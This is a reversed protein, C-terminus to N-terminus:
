SALHNRIELYKMFENTMVYDPLANYTTIERAFEYGDDDLQRSFQVEGHKDFGILGSDFLKHHNECLWLGNDGSTAHKIREELSIHRAKKIDSVAWIHAGQIIEPIGCECLYCHKPGLKELLNFTYHPSRLSNNNEFSHKELQMDTPIININGMMQLVDLSAKPLEKLDKELMEYLSIHQRSEALLSIAYCMMSTEYKNAGYTKGYIDYQNISSKTIYTSNNSKNRDANSRRLHMIDEITSFPRVSEGLAERDNLFSFGVTKMLRYILMQYETKANGKTNLFYYYLRKNHYRNSYFMNFATPVSQVSSNRGGIEKESFSIYSVNNNYYLIALRGKNYTAELFDDEYDNDVFDYTYELLGTIRYCVDGLVGETIVDSFYKGTTKSKQLNAKIIFHPTTRLIM